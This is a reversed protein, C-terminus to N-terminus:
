RASGPRYTMVRDRRDRERLRLRRARRPSPTWASWSRVPSRPEGAALAGLASQGPVVPVGPILADEGAAARPDVVAWGPAARGRAAPGSDGGAAPDAAACAGVASPVTVPVWELHFLGEEEPHGAAIRTPDFERLALSGVRAVLQGQPDAATLSLSAAPNGSVRVRLARAGAAHLSVGGFSFPLRGAGEQLATLASAQLAADLLAPHLVFSAAQAHETEPLTVEALIEGDLRWARALGRFAPGYGLGAGALRDYIGDLDAPQAGPPPWAGALVGTDHGQGAGADPGAPTLVGAAHLTWPADGGPGAGAAQEPRSYVTM